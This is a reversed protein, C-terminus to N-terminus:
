DVLAFSLINPGAAVAVYQRGDFMYTMPSAKWLTNAQFHWLPAGNLADVAMLAGSDEALFVLGTSTGLAGGWSEAEGTQPLEWAIKGTTIDIARLIKQGPEGPVNRTTGGFFSRGAQWQQNPTLTFVTCKELTQVYYLGTAPNFSTSFWNTAGEVSPCAKYGEPKPEQGPILVPRGDPGIGSAWSLNKVFPKALLLKGSTRDLVYFFGNRNAHLLVKRPQGEWTVDALVAPQLADWDWVDHPTYQYHWKLKGTQPDLALM